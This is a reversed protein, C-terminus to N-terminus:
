VLTIEVNKAHVMLSFGRDRIVIIPHVIIEMIMLGLILGVIGALGM